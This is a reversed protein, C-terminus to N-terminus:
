LDVFPFWFRYSFPVSVSKKNKKHIYIDAIDSLQTMEKFFNLSTLIKGIFLMM